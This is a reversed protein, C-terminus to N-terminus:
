VADTALRAGDADQKRVPAGSPELLRVGLALAASATGLLTVGTWGWHSYVLSGLGSGIAMGVFMVTILIANLRSRAAPVLSYVISQHSILASQVGLDFGIVAVSMLTLEVWPHFLQALAMLAFSVLSLGAGLRTLLAPGRRDAIGGAIPAILAGAAGALGFAGAASSGLHLPGDHLRLALLSWFASFGVSLLGQAVAARRLSRHSNWLTVLSGLLRGYSMTTTTAIPSLGRWVAAIVLAISASAVLFMARWGLTDTVVGSVVRSLLIGLLLGTMVTGIVRGRRAEPALTAAVSVTDQALTASLGIFLSGALLVPLTHATACVLLALVLVAAKALIIRRRDFRDGLPALLLIGLAYGIQTFMPLLGISVGALHLDAGIGPLMPQAYYLTAVGLGTISALLLTVAPALTPHAARPKRREHSSQMDSKM